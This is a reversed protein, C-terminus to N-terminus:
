HMTDSSSSPAAALVAPCCTVCTAAVVSAEHLSTPGRKGGFSTMGILILSAGVLAAVLIARVSDWAYSARRDEDASDHRRDITYYKPAIDM